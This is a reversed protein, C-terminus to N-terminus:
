IPLLPSFGCCVAIILCLVGRPVSVGNSRSSHTDAWWLQGELCIKLYSCLWQKGTAESIRGHVCGCVCLYQEHHVPFGSPSSTSFRWQAADLDCVWQLLAAMKLLEWLISTMKTGPQHQGPLGCLQKGRWQQVRFMNWHTSMREWLKVVKAERDEKKTEKTREIVFKTRERRHKRGRGTM